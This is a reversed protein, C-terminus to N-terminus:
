WNEGIKKFKLHKVSEFETFYDNGGVIIIEFNPIGQSLISNIIQVIRASVSQNNVKERHNKSGATIIGFTFDMLKENAM